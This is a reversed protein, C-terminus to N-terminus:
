QAIYDVSVRKVFNRTEVKCVLPVGSAFVTM